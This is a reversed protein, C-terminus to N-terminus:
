RADLAVLNPGEAAGLFLVDGLFVLSLVADAVHPRPRSDISIGFQDAAVKSALTIRLVGISEHEVQSGSEIGADLEGSVTVACVEFGNLAREAELHVVRLQHLDVTRRNTSTRLTTVAGGIEHTRIFVRQDSIGDKFIDRSRKNLALVQRHAHAHAPERAERVGEALLHFIVDVRQRDVEHSVVKDTDVLCSVVGASCAPTVSLSHDM